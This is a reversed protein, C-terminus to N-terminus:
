ILLFVVWFFKADLVLLIKWQRGMRLEPGAESADLSVGVPRSKPVFNERKNKALINKALINKGRIKKGLSRKRCSLFKQIKHM